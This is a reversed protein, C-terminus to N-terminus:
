VRAIQKDRGKKEKAPVQRNSIAFRVCVKQYPPVVLKKLSLSVLLSSQLEDLTACDLVADKRNSHITQINHILEFLALL